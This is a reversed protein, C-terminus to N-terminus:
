YTLKERLCWNKMKNRKHGLLVNECLHPKDLLLNDVNFNPWRNDCTTTIKEIVGWQPEVTTNKLLHWLHPSPKIKLSDNRKSFLTIWKNTCLVVFCLDLSVSFIYLMWISKCCAYFFAYKFVLLVCHNEANLEWFM